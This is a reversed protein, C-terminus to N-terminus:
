EFPVARSLGYTLYLKFISASGFSTEGHYNASLTDDDLSTVVLGWRQGRPQSAAWKSLEDKLALSAQSNVSKM